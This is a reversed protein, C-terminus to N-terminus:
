INYSIACNRIFFFMEQTEQSAKSLFEVWFPHSTNIITIIIGNERRTDFVKGGSGNAQFETKYWIDDRKRKPNPNKQHGRPTEPIKEDAPKENRGKKPIDLLKNANIGKDIDEFIKKEEEALNAKNEDTQRHQNLGIEDIYKQLRLKIADKFGQDIDKSDKEYIMKNFNSSFIKDDEGDIFLEIRGGVYWNDRNPYIGIGVGKGVLRLNRYIYLGSWEGNRAMITKRLENRVNADIYYANFTYKKNDYEFTENLVSLRTSYSKNREMPDLGELKKENIFISKNKEDIFYKYTLSLNKSLIGEFQDVNNNTLRDLKTIEIITGTESEVDKKFQEYEEESGEKILISWNNKEYLEDMDFVVVYFLDHASKTMITLRKGISLSASKLGTGYAGLDNTLDKQSNSGLTIAEKLVLRDMGSGNDCIKIFDFPVKKNPLRIVINTAEVDDELSNDIIDAIATYNNYGSNRLANLVKVNPICSEEITTNKM